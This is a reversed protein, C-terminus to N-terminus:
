RAEGGAHVLFSARSGDDGYLWVLCPAGGEARSVADLALAVSAPGTAAGIEGFSAAPYVEAVGKLGANASLWVLAHGWDMARREDGNLQGIVVGPRPRDRLTNAISRALARGVAPDGNFRTSPEADQVWEDIFGLAPVGGSREAELCLFGAAEGPSLRAPDDDTKALGGDLLAELTSSDVLTDIGGIICREVVRRRLLVFAEDLAAVFDSQTRCYVRSVAPAELKALRALRPIFDGYMEPQDRPLQTPPPDLEYFPPPLAVLMATRKSKGDELVSQLDALAAVGLALLRGVGAFGQALPVAHGVVPVEDVGMDTAAVKVGPLEAARLIGAASAAVSQRADNGLSTVLGVGRV